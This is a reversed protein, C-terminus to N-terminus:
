LFNVRLSNFIKSLINYFLFSGIMFLIIPACFKFILKYKNKTMM